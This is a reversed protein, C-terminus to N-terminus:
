LSRRFHQPGYMEGDLTPLHPYVRLVQRVIHEAASNIQVHRFKSEYDDMQVHQATRNCSMRFHLRQLFADDFGQPTNGPPNWSKGKLLFFMDPKPLGDVFGELSTHTNHRLTSTKTWLRFSNTYNVVVCPAEALRQMLAPKHEYLNAAYLHAWWQPNEVLEDARTSVAALLATGPVSGMANFIPFELVHGMLRTAVLCATHRKGVDVFGGLEILPYKQPKDELGWVRARSNQPPKHNKM